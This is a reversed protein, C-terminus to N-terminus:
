ALKPPPIPFGISRKYFQSLYEEEGEMKYAVRVISASKYIVPPFDALLFSSGGSVATMIQANINELLQEREGLSGTLTYNHHTSVGDTTTIIVTFISNSMTEGKM